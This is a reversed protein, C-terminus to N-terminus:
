KKVGPAVLRSLVVNVPAEQYTRFVAAFPKGSADPRTIIMCTVVVPEMEPWIM